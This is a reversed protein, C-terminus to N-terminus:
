SSSFFCNLVLRDTESSSQCMFKVTIKKAKVKSLNLKTIAKENVNHLIINLNNVIANDLKFSTGKYKLLRTINITGTYIISHKIYDINKSDKILVDLTGINCPRMLYRHTQVINNFAHCTGQINILSKEDLNSFINVLIESPLSSIHTSSESPFLSTFKTVAKLLPTIIMSSYMDICM